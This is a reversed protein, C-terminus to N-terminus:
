REPMGNIPHPELIWLTKGLCSNVCRIGQELPKMVVMMITRGYHPPQGFTSDLLIPENKLQLLLGLLNILSATKLAHNKILNRNFRQRSRAGGETAGYTPLTKSRNLSELSMAPAFMLEKRVFAFVNIVGCTPSTVSAKPCGLTQLLVQPPTALVRM